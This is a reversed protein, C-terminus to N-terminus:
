QVVGVCNCKQAFSAVRGGTQKDYDDKTANEWIGLDLGIQIPPLQEAYEKHEKLKEVNLRFYATVFGIGACMPCSPDLEKRGDKLHRSKIQQIIQAPKPIFEYYEIANRIAYDIESISYKKLVDYYVLIKNDVRKDFANGMYQMLKEFKPIDLETM